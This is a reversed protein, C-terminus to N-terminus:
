MVGSVPAGVVVGGTALSAIEGSTGVVLAVEGAFSWTIQVARAPGALAVLLAVWLLWWRSRM